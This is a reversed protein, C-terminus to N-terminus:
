YQQMYQLNFESITLVRSATNLKSVPYQELTGGLTTVTVDGVEINFEDPITIQLTSKERLPNFNQVSISLTSVASVTTPSASVQVSSTSTKVPTNAALTISSADQVTDISVGSADATSLTFGTVPTQSPPARV